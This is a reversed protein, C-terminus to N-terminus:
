LWKLPPAIPGIVACHGCLDIRSSTLQVTKCINWGYELRGVMISNNLFLGGNPLGKLFM